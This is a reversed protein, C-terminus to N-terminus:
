LALPQPEDGFEDEDFLLPASLAAGGGRRAALAERAARAGARVRSAGAQLGARMADRRAPTAGAAAGLYLALLAAVASTAGRFGLGGALAAGVLPGAAEGACYVANFLAAAGEAGSAGGCAAAAQREMYPLCPIIAAAAGAGLLLLAACQAAWAAASGAQPASGLAPSPGLLLYSAALLAVGCRMMRDAGLRDALAGAAPAAMAYALACLGFLAGISAESARLSTALHPALTPGVFGFAVGALLTVAAADLVAPVRLVQRFTLPPLRPSAAAYDDAEDGSLHGGPPVLAAEIPVVSADRRPLAFPLLPLSALLGVGMAAFPAAFGGVSFLAGGIVPGIMFGVGSIAEQIGIVTALQQKFREACFALLATYSLASGAGQACRLALYAWGAGRRVPVLGMAAATASELVVGLLLM